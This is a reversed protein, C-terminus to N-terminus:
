LEDPINDNILSNVNANAKISKGYAKINSFVYTKLEDITKIKNLVEQPNVKPKQIISSTM